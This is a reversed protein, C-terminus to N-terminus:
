IYLNADCSKSTLSCKTWFGEIDPARRKGVILHLNEHWTLKPRLITIMYRNRQIRTFSPRGSWLAHKTVPHKSPYRSRLPLSCLLRSFIHLARGIQVRWYIYAFPNPLYLDRMPSILFAFLFKSSVTFALHLKPLMSISPLIINFNVKFPYVTLISHIGSPELYPSGCSLPQQLSLLLRDCEM